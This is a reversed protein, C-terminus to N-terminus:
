LKQGVINQWGELHVINTGLNVAPCGHNSYLCIKEAFERYFNTITWRKLVISTEIIFISM